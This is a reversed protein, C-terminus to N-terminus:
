DRLTMILVLAGAGIAVPLIWSNSKPQPQPSTPSGSGNDALTDGTAVYQWQSANALIREVYPWTETQVRAPLVSWNIARNERAAAQYEARNEGSNYGALAIDYRGGFMALLDNMYAAWATLALFPDFADNFDNTGYRPWTGPMFQAIGRAGSPSVANPNFSSEQQIQALAIRQDIGYADAIERVMQILEDRTAM